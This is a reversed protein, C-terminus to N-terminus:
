VALHAAFYVTHQDHQLCLTMGDKEGLQLANKVASCLVNYLTSDRTYGGSM